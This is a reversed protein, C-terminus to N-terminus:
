KLRLSHKTPEAAGLEKTHMNVVGLHVGKLNHKEFELHQFDLSILLNGKKYIRRKSKSIVDNTIKEDFVFGNTIAFADGIVPHIELRKNQEITLVRSIRHYNDQDNFFLSMLEYQEFEDFENGENFSYNQSFFYYFDKVRYVHSLDDCFRLSPINFCRQADIMIDSTSFRDITSFSLIVVTDDVKKVDNYLEIDGVGDIESSGLNYEIAQIDTYNSFIAIFVRRVDTDYINKALDNISKTSSLFNPNNYIEFATKIKFDEVDALKSHIYKLYKLKSVFDTVIANVNSEDILEGGFSSSNLLLNMLGVGDIFKGM